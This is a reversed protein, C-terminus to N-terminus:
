STEGVNRMMRVTRSRRGSGLGASRSTLESIRRFARCARHNAASTYTTRVADTKAIATRAFRRRRVGLTSLLRERLRTIGVEDLIPGEGLRPAATGRAQASRCCKFGRCGFTVLLKSCSPIQGPQSPSYPASVAPVQRPAERQSGASHAMVCVRTDSRCCCKGNSEAPAYARARGDLTKPCRIPSQISRDPCRRRSAISDIRRDPGVCRRGFPPEHRSCWRPRHQPAPRRQRTRM